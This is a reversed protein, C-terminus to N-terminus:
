KELALYELGDFKLTDDDSINMGFGRLFDKIADKTAQAGEYDESEACDRVLPVFTKAWEVPCDIDCCWPRNELLWKVHKYAAQYYENEKM